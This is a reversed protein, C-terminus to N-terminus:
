PLHSTTGARNVVSQCNLTTSTTSALMSALNAGFLDARGQRGATGQGIQVGAIHQEVEKYTRAADMSVATAAIKM